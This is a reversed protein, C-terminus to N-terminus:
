RGCFGSQDARDPGKRESPSGWVQINWFLRPHGSEGLQGHGRGKAGIAPELGMRATQLSEWGEASQGNQGFPARGQLWGAFAKAEGTPSKSIM